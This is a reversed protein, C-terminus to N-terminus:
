ARRLVAVGPLEKGELWELFAGGAASVYSFSELVGAHSLAAVTDGGGAVSRLRGAATLEAAKRAVHNTAADFPPVEFAGLPGNWVLSRCDALRRALHDATAPGLDLIMQDAPVAKVSVTRTEIGPELRPAVVVDTPLVMQCGTERARELIGRATEAMDRECLSAGVDQGVANLFTNAMGGGIVLVDVKAVLNMLLDLKTSVKAGGVVAMLPRAPKELVRELHELEEQMLRGAAAPLREALPAVSAHARHAVSFADGVYLDGLAALREAFAADGSEEGPHFRLNELLVVGGPRLGAVAEEAPPGVCDEAFTVETGTLTARLPALVAKLSMSDVRRGKPRGFHSLLVVKAGKDLLERITRAGRRIRTADTVDGDKVPVNFDVRVLVTKGDVDLDDLTNFRVM